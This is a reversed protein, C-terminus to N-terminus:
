SPEFYSHSTKIKAVPNLVLSNNDGTFKLPLFLTESSDAHFVPASDYLPTHMFPKGLRNMSYPGFVFKPLLEM